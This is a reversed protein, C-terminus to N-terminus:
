KIINRTVIICISNLYPKYSTPCQIKDSITFLHDKEIIHLLMMYCSCNLIKFCNAPTTAQPKDNWRMSGSIYTTPTSSYTVLRGTFFIVFIEPTSTQLVTTKDAEKNYKHEEQYTLREVILYLTFTTVRFCLNYVRFM